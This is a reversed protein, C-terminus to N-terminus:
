VHLVTFGNEYMDEIDHLSYKNLCLYQKNKAGTM